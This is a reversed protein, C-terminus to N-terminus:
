PLWGEDFYDDLLWWLGDFYNEDGVELLYYFKTQYKGTPDAGYIRLAARMEPEGADGFAIPSWDFLDEGSGVENDGFVVVGRASQRPLSNNFLSVPSILHAEGRNVSSSVDEGRDVDASAWALGDWRTVYGRGALLLGIDESAICDNADFGVEFSDTIYTRRSEALYNPSDTVDIVRDQNTDEDVYGPSSYRVSTLSAVTANEPELTYTDDGLRFDLQYLYNELDLQSFENDEDGWWWSLYDIITLDPNAEEFQDFRARLTNDPLELTSIGECGTDGGGGDGLDVEVTVVSDDYEYEEYASATSPMVTAALVSVLSISLVQKIRSSIKM